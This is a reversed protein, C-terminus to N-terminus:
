KGKILFESINVGIVRNRTRIIGSLNWGMLLRGETLVSFKRARSFFRQYGPYGM